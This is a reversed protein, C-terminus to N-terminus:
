SLHCSNIFNVAQRELDSLSNENQIVYDCISMRFNKASLLDERRKLEDYDWGRSERCRKLRSEFSATVYVACGIWEPRGTEPLLPIEAIIDPKVALAHIQNMVVPHILRNCFSHEERDAFIIRAIESKIINGEADLISSGWRSVAQRKVDPRTWAELAIKDADVSRCCLLRSLMATVTSKGSGIDGTVATVM